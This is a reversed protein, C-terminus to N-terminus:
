DMAAELAVLERDRLSAVLDALLDETAAGPAEV